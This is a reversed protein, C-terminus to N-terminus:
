SLIVDLGASKLDRFKVAGAYINAFEFCAAFYFLGFVLKNRSSESVIDVLIKNEFKNM